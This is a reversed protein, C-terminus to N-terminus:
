IGQLEKIIISVETRDSFSDVNKFRIRGKKDIIFTAYAAEYHDYKKLGFDEAVKRNPMPILVYTIGFTRKSKEVDQQDGSTSIAIVVANLKEIESVKEQLEGLQKRSYPWTHNSYFVLVVNKEGIVDSFRVENGSVDVLSFGSAYDGVNPSSEPSQATSACNVFFACVLLILGIKKMNDEM